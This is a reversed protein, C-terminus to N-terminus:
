SQNCRDILDSNLKLHASVTISILQWWCADHQDCATLNCSHEGAPLQILLEHSLDASSLDAQPQGCVWHYTLPSCDESTGSHEACDGDQATGNLRIAAM